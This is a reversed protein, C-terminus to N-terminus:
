LYIMILEQYHNFTTILYKQIFEDIKIKSDKQQKIKM